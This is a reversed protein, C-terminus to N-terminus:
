NEFDGENLHDTGYPHIVNFEGLVAFLLFVCYVIIMYIGISRRAQFRTLIFLLFTFFLLMFLFYSCNRGMTGSRAQFHVFSKDFHLDVMSLIMVYARGTGSHYMKLNFVM